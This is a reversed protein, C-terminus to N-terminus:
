RWVPRWGLAWNLSSGLSGTGTLLSRGGGAVEGGAFRACWPASRYGWDLGVYRVVPRRGSRIPWRLKEGALLGKKM